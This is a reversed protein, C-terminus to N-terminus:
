DDEDLDLLRQFSTKRIVKRWKDTGFERLTLPATRKRGGAWEVTVQERKSDVSLIKVTGEAGEWEEGVLIAINPLPETSVGEVMFPRHFRVFDELLMTFTQEEQRFTVAGDRVSVAEITMGTEKHTWRSPAHVLQTELEELDGTARSVSLLNRALLAMPFVDGNQNPRDAARRQPGTHLILSWPDLTIDPVLPVGFILPPEDTDSLTLTEYQGRLVSYVVPHCRIRAPSRKNREADAIATSIADMWWAPTTNPNARGPIYAWTSNCLVCSWGTVEPMIDRAVMNEVPDPNGCNPCPSAVTLNPNPQSQPADPQDSLLELRTGAPAHRPCTYDPSTGRSYRFVASLSCGRRSCVFPSRPALAVYTWNLHLRDPSIRYRSGTLSVFTVITNSVDAVIGRIARGQTDRTERLEGM